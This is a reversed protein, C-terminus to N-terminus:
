FTKQTFAIKQKVREIVHNKAEQMKQSAQEGFKKLYYHFEKERNESTLKMASKSIRERDIPNHWIKNKYFRPLRTKQGNVIAYNKDNNRHWNVMEDTLYKGGIGYARSMLSFPREITKWKPNDRDTQVIYKTVYGVSAASVNGIHVLGIPNGLRDRWCERALKESVNFLLLHYHPRGYQTGYEGVGFYRIKTEGNEKKDQKRLKKLYLQVHKKCLSGNSPLHKSDYTLTVFLASKTTRHEVQLRFIWDTRKNVLCPICKGCPVTIPYEKFQDTWDISRHPWLTKPSTCDM